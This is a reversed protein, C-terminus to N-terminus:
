FLWLSAYGLYFVISDIELVGSRAHLIDGLAFFFAVAVLMTASLLIAKWYSFKFM